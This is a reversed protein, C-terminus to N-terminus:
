PAQPMKIYGFNEYLDRIVLENCAAAVGEYVNELNIFAPKLVVNGTKNIFGYPMKLGEEKIIAYGNVFDGKEEHCPLISENPKIILDGKTNIYGYLTKNNEISFTKVRALGEYFDTVEEFKPQIAINGTKDFFGYRGNKEFKLLGSSFKKSELFIDAPLTKIVQGKNNIIQYAGTDNTKVIAMGESFDFAEEFQPKIVFNGKLDIYGYLPKYVGSGTKSKMYFSFVALNESFDKNFARSAMGSPKDSSKDIVVKGNTDIYVPGYNDQEILARGCHFDHLAPVHDLDPSSLGSHIEFESKYIFEGSKNLYGVRPTGWEDNFYVAAFGESFDRAAPYKRSIVEKGTMDIYGYLEPGDRYIQVRAMGCHFDRAEDFRPQIFFNPIIEDGYIIALPILILVMIIFIVKKM